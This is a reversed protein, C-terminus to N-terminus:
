SLGELNVYKQLFSDRANPDCGDWFSEFSNFGTFYGFDFPDTRNNPSPQAELHNAADVRGQWLGLNYEVTCTLHDNKHIEIWHLKGKGWGTERGYNSKKWLFKFEDDSPMVVPKLKAWNTLQKETPEFIKRGM